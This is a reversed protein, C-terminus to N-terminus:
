WYKRASIVLSLNLYIVYLLNKLVRNYDIRRELAAAIM